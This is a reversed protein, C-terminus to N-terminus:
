NKKQSETMTLAVESQTKSVKKRDLSHVRNIQESM